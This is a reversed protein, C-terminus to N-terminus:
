RLVNIKSWIMENELDVAHQKDYLHMQTLRFTKVAYVRKTVKHKLKRVESFRGQGIINEYSSRM